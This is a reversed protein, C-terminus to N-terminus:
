NHVGGDIKIIEGTLFAGDDSALMAVVGAVHEPKGSIQDPRMLHAYLSYDVKDGLTGLPNAATMGTDIGGPAVANIRIGEKLYEWALSKTFALVGGKSAAYATMAPHAYLSSTSATNVINGKTKLLHPLAERCVLFTGILNVNIPLMFEELSTDVIYSARLIGAFHALVDLKGEREIAENFIKKVDEENSVSGVIYSVHHSQEGALLKTEKLGEENLDVAIVKGGESAFRIVSARGMGSAAGTVLIVKNTFRNLTKM